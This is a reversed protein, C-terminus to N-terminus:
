QGRLNAREAIPHGRARGVVLEGQVGTPRIATNAAQRSFWLPASVAM